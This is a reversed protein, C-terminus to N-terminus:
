ADARGSMRSIRARFEELLIAREGVIHEFWDVMELIFKPHQEFLIGVQTQKSSHATTICFFVHTNDIILVDIGIPTHTHLFRPATFEHVGHKAYIQGRRALADLLDETPVDQDVVILPHFRLPRGAKERKKIEKALNKAVADPIKYEAGLAHIFLRINKEAKLCLKEILATIDPLGRAVTGAVSSEAQSRTFNRNLEEVEAMLEPPFLAVAINADRLRRIGRGTIMQNPDLMGVVVRSVKREILREACPVKPHNRTTCPELTTYVTAEAISRNPLKKELATFEAHDGPDKEGRFADALVDGNKVVVAGVMPHAREDEGKCYRSQEIALRMFHIDQDM